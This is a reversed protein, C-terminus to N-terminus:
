IADPALEVESEKDRQEDDEDISVFTIKGSKTVSKIAVVQVEGEIHIENVTRHDDALRLSVYQGEKLDSLQGIEYATWIKATSSVDLNLWTEQGDLSITVTAPKGVNVEVINGRLGQEFRTPEDQLKGYAIGGATLLSVICISIYNMKELGIM